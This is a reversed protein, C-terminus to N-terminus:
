CKSKTSRQATSNNGSSISKKDNENKEVGGLVDDKISNIIESVIKIFAERFVDSYRVRNSLELRVYNTEYKSSLHTRFDQGPVIDRVKFYFDLVSKFIKSNTKDEILIEFEDRDWIGGLEVVLLPSDNDIVSVFNAGTRKAIEHGIIQTLDEEPSPAIIYIM